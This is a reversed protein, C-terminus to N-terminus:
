AYVRKLMLEAAGRWQEHCKSKSVVDLVSVRIQFIVYIGSTDVSRNSILYEGHLAVFQM